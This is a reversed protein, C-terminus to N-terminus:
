RRHLQYYGGGELPKIEHVGRWFHSVVWEVLEKSPGGDRYAPVLFIELSGETRKAKGDLARSFRDLYAEDTDDWAPTSGDPAPSYGAKRM